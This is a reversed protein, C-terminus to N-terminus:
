RHAVSAILCDSWTVGHSLRFNLMQNMARRQDPETLFEIGFQKVLELSDRQGKKGSAGPVFELWVISTIALSLQSAVWARAVQNRRFLHILINTDVIGTTM